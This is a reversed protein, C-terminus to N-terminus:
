NGHQEGEIYDNLMTLADNFNLVKKTDKYILVFCLTERGENGNNYTRHLQGVNCLSPKHTTASGLKTCNKISATLIHDNLDQKQDPPVPPVVVMKDSAYWEIGSDVAGRSVNLKTHNSLWSYDTHLTGHHQKRTFFSEVHIIDIGARNLLDILQQNQPRWDDDDFYVNQFAKSDRDFKFLEDRPWQIEFPLDIYRHLDIVFVGQIYRNGRAM